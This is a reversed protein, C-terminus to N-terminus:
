WGTPKTVTGHREKLQDPFQSKRLTETKIHKVFM